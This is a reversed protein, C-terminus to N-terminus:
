QKDSKGVIFDGKGTGIELAHRLYGVQPTIPMTDTSVFEPHEAILPKAWPKSKLRM